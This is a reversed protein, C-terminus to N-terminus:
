LGYPISIHYEFLQFCVEIAFCCFIANVKTSSDAFNILNRQFIIMKVDTRDFDCFDQGDMVCIMGFKPLISKYFERAKSFRTVTLIVHAMGNIEIKSM